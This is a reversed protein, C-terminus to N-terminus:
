EKIWKDKFNVYEVEVARGSKKKKAIWIENFVENEILFACKEKEERDLSGNVKVEVGIVNYARNDLKQFCIFDPFGTGLTMVKSFPNFKRKAPIIKKDILDINNVWKCVIWGKEELNTRVRAEFTLGSQRSKKGKEMESKKKQSSIRGGSDWETVYEESGAKKIKELLEKKQKAKIKREINKTLLEM